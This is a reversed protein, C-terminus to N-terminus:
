NKLEFQTLEKEADESHYECVLYRNKFRVM